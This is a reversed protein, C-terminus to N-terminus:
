SQLLINGKFRTSFLKADHLEGSPPQLWHVSPLMLEKLREFNVNEMQDDYSHIALSGHYGSDCGSVNM